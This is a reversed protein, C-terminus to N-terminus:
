SCEKGSVKEGVAQRVGTVTDGVAQKAVAVKEAIFARTEKGTRPAYLLAIAGGIMAGVLLGLGFGGCHQGNM